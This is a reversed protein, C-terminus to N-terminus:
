LSMNKGNFVQNSIFTTAKKSIFTPAQNTIFTKAM